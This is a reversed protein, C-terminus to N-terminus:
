GSVVRAQDNKDPENDVRAECEQTLREADSENIVFGAFAEVEFVNM